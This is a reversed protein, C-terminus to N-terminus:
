QTSAALARNCLYDFRCAQMITVGALQDSVQSLLRVPDDIPDVYREPWEWAIPLFASVSLEAWSADLFRNVISWHPRISRGFRRDRQVNKRAALQKAVRPDMPEYADFLRRWWDSFVKLREQREEHNIVPNLVVLNGREVPLLLASMRRQVLRRLEPDARREAEVTKYWGLLETFALPPTLEICLEAHKSAFSREVRTLSRLLTAPWRSTLRAIMIDLDFKTGSSAADWSYMPRCLAGLLSITRYPTTAASRGAPSALGAKMYEHFGKVVFRDLHARTPVCPKSTLMRLDQGCRCHWAPQLSRWSLKTGCECKSLLECGHDLCILVLPLEWLWRHHEHLKLCQPCFRLHLYSFEAQTAVKTRRSSVAAHNLNWVERDPRLRDGAIRQVTTWAENLSEEDIPRYICQLSRHLADPMRHGNTDFYRYFYGALSEGELKSPRLPFQELQIM